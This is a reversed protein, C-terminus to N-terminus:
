ADAGGDATPSPPVALSEIARAIREELRRKESIDTERDTEMETETKINTRESIEVTVLANVKIRPAQIPNVTWRPMPLPRDEMEARTFIEARAFTGSSLLIMTLLITRTM